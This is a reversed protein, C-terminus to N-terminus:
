ASGREGDLAVFEFAVVLVGFAQLQQVRRVRGEARQEVHVLARGGAARAQEAGVDDLLAGVVEDVAEVGVLDDGVALVVLVQLGAAAVRAQRPVQARDLQVRDGAELLDVTVQAAAVDVAARRGTRAEDRELDFGRAADAADLLVGLFEAGFRLLGAREVPLSAHVVEIFIRVAVGVVEVAGGAGLGRVQGAM